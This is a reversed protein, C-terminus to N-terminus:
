ETALSNFLTFYLVYNISFESNVCCSFFIKERVALQKFDKLQEKSPVTINQCTLPCLHVKCVLMLRAPIFDAKSVPLSGELELAPLV